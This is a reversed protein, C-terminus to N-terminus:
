ILSVPNMDLFDLQDLPKFEYSYLPNRIVQLGNPGNIQIYESGGVSQPFLSDDDTRNAAWDWYPIRLLRLANQYRQRDEEDDWLKVIDSM